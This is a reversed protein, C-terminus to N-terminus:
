ATICLTEEKPIDEATEGEKAWADLKEMTLRYTEACIGPLEDGFEIGAAEFGDDIAAKLLNYKTKDGGSIAKAFEVIRDSVKGTSLDGGEELLAQAEKQAIDDVTLEKIEEPYIVKIEQFELGQRKLLATVIQKLQAHAKESEDWLQQITKQDVKPKGYTAKKELTISEYTDQQQYIHLNKQIGDEKKYDLKAETVKSKISGYSVARKTASMVDM